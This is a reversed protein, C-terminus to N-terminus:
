GEQGPERETEVGPGEDAFIINEADNGYKNTVFTIVVKRAADKAEKATKALTESFTKYEKGEANIKYLPSKMLSGDKKKTQMKIDTIFTEITTSGESAI